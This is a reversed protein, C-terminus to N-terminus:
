FAVGAARKEDQVFSGCIPEKGVDIHQEFHQV